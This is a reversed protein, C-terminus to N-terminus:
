PLPVTVVVGDPILQPVVHTAVKLLPAATVRCAMGAAPEVKVPQLPVPQVFPTTVIFALVVQVAVKLGRGEDCVKVRDITFNPVPVPVTVLVGAPM